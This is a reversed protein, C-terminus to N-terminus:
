RLSNKLQHSHSPVTLQLKMIFNGMKRRDVNWDSKSILILYDWQLYPVACRRRDDNHVIITGLKM